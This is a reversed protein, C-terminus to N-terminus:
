IRKPGAEGGDESRYLLGNTYDGSGEVEMVINTLICEDLSVLHKVLMGYWFRTDEPPLVLDTLESESPSIDRWEYSGSTLDACLIGVSKRDGQRVM